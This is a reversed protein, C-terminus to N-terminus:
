KNALDEAFKDVFNSLVPIEFKEGKVDYAKYSAYIWVVFLALNLLGSLLWGIIPFIGLVIILIFGGLFIIMSRAAHFRVDKDEKEILYFILGGLFGLLYSLLSYLMKNDDNKEKTEKKKEVM